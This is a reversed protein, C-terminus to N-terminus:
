PNGSARLIFGHLAPPRTGTTMRRGVTDAPAIASVWTEMGSGRSVQDRDHARLWLALMLGAAVAMAAALPARRALWQAVTPERNSVHTQWAVTEIRSALAAWYAPDDPLQPARHTSHDTM